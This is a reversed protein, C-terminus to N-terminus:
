INLRLYDNLLRDTQKVENLIAGSKNHVYFSRDKETIPKFYVDYMYVNAQESWGTVSALKCTNIWSILSM